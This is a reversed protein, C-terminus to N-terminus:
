VNLDVGAPKKTTRLVDGILGVLMFCTDHTCGTLEANFCLRKQMMLVIEKSRKMNEISESIEILNRLDAQVAM